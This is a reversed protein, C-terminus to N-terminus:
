KKKKSVIYNTYGEVAKRINYFAIVKAKFSKHYGGNDWKEMDLNIATAAEWELYSFSQTIGTSIGGPISVKTINTDSRRVRFNIKPRLWM